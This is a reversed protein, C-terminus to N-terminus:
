ALPDGDSASVQPRLWQWYNRLMRKGVSFEGGRMAEIAQALYAARYEPDQLDALITQTFERTLAMEAAKVFRRCSIDQSLESPVAVADKRELM